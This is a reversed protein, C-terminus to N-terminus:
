ALPQEQWRKVALSGAHFFDAKEGEPMPRGRRL